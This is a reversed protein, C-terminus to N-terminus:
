LEYKVEMRKAFQFLISLVRPELYITDTPYNLDNAKLIIGYGDFEVYVGDGIYDENDNM